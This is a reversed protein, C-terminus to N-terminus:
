LTLTGRAAGQRSGARYQAALTVVLGLLVTIVLILNSM